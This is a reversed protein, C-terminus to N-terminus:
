SYAGPTNLGRFIGAPVPMPSGARRPEDTPLWIWLPSPGPLPSRDDEHPRVIVRNAAPTTGRV